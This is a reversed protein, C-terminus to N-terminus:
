SASNREEQDYNLFIGGKREKEGQSPFRFSYERESRRDRGEGKEKKESTAATMRKIRPCHPLM